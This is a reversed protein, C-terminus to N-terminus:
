FVRFSDEKAKGGQVSHLFKGGGLGAHKLICSSVFVEPSEGSSFFTPRLRACYYVSADETQLRNGTLTVTNSSTDRSVSFKNKLSDKHNTSGDYYIHNIWELAKGAPQRIWGTGLYSSSDTISAGTVTCTISVTEGPKIVLWSSQKHEIDCEVGGLTVAPFPLMQVMLYLPFSVKKNQPYRACYYVASDETQLRNGHLTLTNSSKVQSISFRNNLKSNYATGDGSCIRGVWELSKGAQQRIWDTCCCGDSLSYGSVKCSLSLTDGPQKM